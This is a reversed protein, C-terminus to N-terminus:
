ETLNINTVSTNSKLAHALMSVDEASLGKGSLDVSHMENLLALTTVILQSPM